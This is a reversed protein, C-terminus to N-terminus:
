FQIEELVPEFIPQKEILEFNDWTNKYKKGYILFRTICKSRKEKTETTDKYYPEKLLTIFDLLDIQEKVKLYTSYISHDFLGQEIAIAKMSNWVVNDLSIYYVKKYEKLKNCDEMLTKIFPNLSDTRSINDIDNVLQSILEATVIQRFKKNGESQMQLLTKFNHINPLKTKERKGILAVKLRSNKPLGLTFLTAQEKDEKDFLVTLFKSKSLDKIPFAKAEFSYFDNRRTVSKQAYMLTIDGEQKNISKSVYTGENIKFKREEVQKLKKNKLWEIYEEKEEINRECIFNSKLQAEIFLFEKISDKTNLIGWKKIDKIKRLFSISHEKVFIVNKYKELFYTKVNREPYKNVIIVKIGNDLFYSKTNNYYLHKTLWRGYDIKAIVSLEPFFYNCRKYYSLDNVSTDKVKLEFVPIDGYPIINNIHFTKNVLDVKKYINGIENYAELFTERENHTENYKTIFYNAVQKIRELILKKTPENTIYSERSPTPILGDTLNFRLAIPIDLRPIGLAEYDIDYLVDKLTIHVSSISSMSSWQFLDNRFIENEVIKNNIILIVGDYFGLKAKAKQQFDYYENFSKINIKISVGDEETTPKTYILDYEAFNEGKYFLLKNEVGDKRITWEAPRELSLSSKSGLGFSGITDNNNEKTSTLYSMVVTEFTELSLGIGRDTFTISYNNNENKLEIIAPNDKGSEIISDIMNNVLECIVASVPDKYLGTTLIYSLKALKDQNISAQKSNGDGIKIINNIGNALIM